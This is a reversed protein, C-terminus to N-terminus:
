TRGDWTEGEWGDGLLGHAAQEGARPLRVVFCAGGGPRERAWVAGGHSLVTEAVLSLGLGTGPLSRRAGARVFREFIHERDEPEVGPGSDEVSIFVSESDSYVTVAALGEGHGDANDFLNGLARGLQHKDVTM